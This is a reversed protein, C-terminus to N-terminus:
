SQLGFSWAFECLGEFILFIFKPRLIFSVTFEDQNRSHSCFMFLRFDLHDVTQGHIWGRTAIHALWLLRFDLHDLSIACLCTGVVANMSSSLFKCGSIFIPNYFVALVGHSCDLHDLYNAYAWFEFLKRMFFPSSRDWFSVSLLNMRIRTVINVVM